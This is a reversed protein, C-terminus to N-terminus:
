KADSESLIAVGFQRLETLDAPPHKIDFTYLGPVAKITGVDEAQVGLPKGSMNLNLIESSTTPVKVVGTETHLTQFGDLKTISIISSGLLQGKQCMFTTDSGMPIGGKSSLYVSDDNGEKHQIGVDTISKPAGDICSLVGHFLVKNAPLAWAAQPTKVASNPADKLYLVVGIKQAASAQHSSAIMIGLAAFLTVAVKKM